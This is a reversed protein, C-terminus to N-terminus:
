GLAAAVAVRCRTVAGRDGPYGARPQAPEMASSWSGPPHRRAVIIKKILELVDYSTLVHSSMCAVPPTVDHLPASAPAAATPAAAPAPQRGRKQKSTKARYGDLAHEKSEKSALAGKNVLTNEDPKFYQWLKMGNAPTAIQGANAIIKLAAERMRSLNPKKKPGAESLRRM